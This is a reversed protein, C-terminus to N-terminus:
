ENMRTKGQQLTHAYHWGEKAMDERVKYVSEAADLVGLDVDVISVDEGPGLKGRAGLMPLAVQSVGAYEAGREDVTQGRPAATNVFVVACTNEFARAVCVSELFLTESAPNLETGEDGGDSALWFSPVVIIRAGDAVLARFAEPFAVDWCVLLGVRGLPTDFAAHPTTADAALHPREPHWLNKKQYRGSIQGKNDIFYCVNAIGSSSSSSSSVGSSESTDQAAVPELLTGPVICIGLERALDQYRQLYAASEQAARKLVESDTAWSSLHYEPLVALNAGNSAADRIFASARDFNTAVDLPQAQRNVLDSTAHARPLIAPNCFM